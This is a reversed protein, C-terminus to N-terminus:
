GLDRPDFGRQLRCEDIEAAVTVAEEGEAFDVGVIVLNGLFVAGRQKGGFRFSGLFLLAKAGFFFLAAFKRSFFVVGLVFAGFRKRFVEGFVAEFFHVRGVLVLDGRDLFAMEVASVVVIRVIAVVIFLALVVARLGLGARATATAAALALTAAARLFHIFGAGLAHGKTALVLDLVDDLAALHQEDLDDLFLAAVLASGEGGIEAEGAAVRNEHRVAAM